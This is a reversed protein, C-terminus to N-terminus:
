LWASPPFALAHPHLSDRRAARARTRLRPLSGVECQPRPRSRAVLRFPRSALVTDGLGKSGASGPSQSMTSSRLRFLGNLRREDAARGAFGQESHDFFNRAFFESAPKFASKPSVMELEHGGFPAVSGFGEASVPSLRKADFDCVQQKRMSFSWADHQNRM